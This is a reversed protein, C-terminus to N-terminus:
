RAGTPSYTSLWKRHLIGQRDPTVTPPSHHRTLDFRADTTEVTTSALPAYRVGDDQPCETARVQVGFTEFVDKCCEAFAFAVRGAQIPVQVWPTVNGQWVIAVAVCGGRIEVVSRCEAIPGPLRRVPDGPRAGRRITITAHTCEAITV